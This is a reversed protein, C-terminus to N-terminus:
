WRTARIGFGPPLKVPPNPPPPPPPLPPAPPDPEIGLWPNGAARQYKIQLAAHYNARRAYQAAEERLKREEARARVTLRKRQELTHYPTVRFDPGAGTADVSTMMDLMRYYDVKSAHRAAEARYHRGRRVSTMIGTMILAVGVVVLMMRWITLQIRPHKM